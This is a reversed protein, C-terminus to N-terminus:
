AILSVVSIGTMLGVTLSIGFMVNVCALTSMVTFFAMIFNDADVLSLVDSVDRPDTM